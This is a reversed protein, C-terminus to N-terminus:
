AWVEDWKRAWWGQGEQVCGAGNFGCCSYYGANCTVSNSIGTDMITFSYSCSSSGQGGTACADVNLSSTIFVAVLLIGFFKIKM